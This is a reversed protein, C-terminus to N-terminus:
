PEEPSVSSKGMGFRNGIRAHIIIKIDTAPM